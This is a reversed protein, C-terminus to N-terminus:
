HSTTTKVTATTIKLPRHIGTKLTIDLDESAASAARSNTLENVQERRDKLHQVLVNLRAVSVAAMDVMARDFVARDVAVM